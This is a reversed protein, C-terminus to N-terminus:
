YIPIQIQNNQLFRLPNLNRLANILFNPLKLLKLQILMAGKHRLQSIGRIYVFAALYVCNDVLDLM